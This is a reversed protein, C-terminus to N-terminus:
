RGVTNFVGTLWQNYDIVESESKVLGFTKRFKEAKAKIEKNSRKRDTKILGQIIELLAVDKQFNKTKLLGSFEKKVGLIKKEIFEKDELEYRVILEAIAIKLRFADDLTGFSDQMYLKVLNRLASRMDGLDFYSVALNLYVFGIYVPHKKIVEKEKAENLIEIAKRQDERSYNNVLTNYYFFLYKDAFM